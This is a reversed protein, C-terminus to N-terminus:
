LFKKLYILSDKAIKRPGPSIDFVEVSIFGSYKIERLAEIIPAFDVRGFGPGQGNPDNAHFHFLYDKNEKIIRPIPREEDSMAKVDLHLKFNPHNIEKILSVAEKATNIFNTESRALPEICIIVGREKAREASEIFVEKVRAKTEEYNSDKEINRQKPSGFILMRGGIDACFDILSKLYETTKKRIKKDFSSVSLGPPSVLLWHLGIVELGYNKALSSIEKRKSLPIEEVSSALTFPAFEIGEYGLNAIYEMIDKLPWFKNDEKFTENCIGLKM